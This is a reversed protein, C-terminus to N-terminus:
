RSGEPQHSSLFRDPSLMFHDTVWLDTALGTHSCSERQWTSLFSVSLSLSLLSRFLPPLCLPLSVSFISSLSCPLGLSPSLFPPVCLPLSPMPHLSCPLCLTHSVSLMPSLSYPLYLAHSYPNSATYCLYIYNVTGILACYYIATSNAWHVAMAFKLREGKPCYHLTM